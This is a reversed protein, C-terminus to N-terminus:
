AQIWGTTSYKGDSLNTTRPNTLSNIVVELSHRPEADSLQTVVSRLFLCLGNKRGKTGVFEKNREHFLTLRKGGNRKGVTQLLQPIFPNGEHDTSCVTEGGLELLHRAPLEAKGRHGKGMLQCSQHQDLLQESRVRDKLSARIVTGSKRQVTKKTECFIGQDGFVVEM